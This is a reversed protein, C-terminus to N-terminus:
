GLCDLPEFLDLFAFSVPPESLGVLWPGQSLPTWFTFLAWLRADVHDLHNLPGYLDMPDNVGFPWLTLILCARAWLPLSLGYGPIYSLSLGLKPFELCPVELPLAAMWPGVISGNSTGPFFSLGFNGFNLPNYVRGFRAIGCWFIMNSRYFFQPVM